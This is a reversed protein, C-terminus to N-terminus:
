YQMACGVNYYPPKQRLASALWFPLDENERFRTHRGMMKMDARERKKQEISCQYETQWNWTCFLICCEVALIDTYIFKLTLQTICIIYSVRAVLKMLTYPFLFMRYNALMEKLFVINLPYVKTFILIRLFRRLFSSHKIKSINIMRCILGMSLVWASEMRTFIKYTWGM